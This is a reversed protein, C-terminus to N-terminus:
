DESDNELEDKLSAKGNLINRVQKGLEPFLGSEELADAIARIAARNRQSRASVVKNGNSVDEMNRKVSPAQDKLMECAELISGKSVPFKVVNEIFKAAAAPGYKQFEIAKKNAKLAECVAYFQVHTLRKQQRM